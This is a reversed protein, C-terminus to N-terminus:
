RDLGQGFERWVDNTHQGLAPVPGLSMEDGEVVAPPAIIEASGNPTEISVRRVSPHSSLRSVDNVFAYATNSAKLREVAVSETMRSFAEAVMGDVMTRNECRAVNSEFGEKTALTPMDLFRACFASWERENQISILIQTGGSTQFVGYPCISPHALGIRNPVQGTGEYYLLPVNMWDALADFLNVKIGSGLGTRERRFLAELVSAHASMGCAIDCVSVGVRGPGSANGTISALGTEAQILLDYAKRDHYPGDSAYGSIDVTILRPHRERLVASDFGLRQAAGPALNQVLVDAKAILRDVLARDKESKLDAIVSEKGRNLWVFYTALGNVASDYKRAFDGEKREIKIVRAGADALRSTCYPAAVAHELAVVLLGNLASSM